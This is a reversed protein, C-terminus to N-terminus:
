EDREGGVVKLDPKTIRGPLNRRIFTLVHADSKSSNCGSCAPVYNALNNPGGHSVPVVHEVVFASTGGNMNDPTLAASCYACVGGTMEWVQRRVDPDNKPHESCKRMSQMMTNADEIAESIESFVNQLKLDILTLDNDSKLIHDRMWEPFADIEEQLAHESEVHMIKLASRELNRRQTEMADIVAAALSRRATLLKEIM